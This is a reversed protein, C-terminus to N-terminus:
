EKDVKLKEGVHSGAVWGTTWCLQLSYGGSPRNVNLTDGILYLNNCIRSQMTKLNVEDLVVGGDAIVADEFGLSGTIPFRLDKMTKVLAKREEKTVSNVEHKSLNLHPLSLVAEVMKKPLIEHFINKLQKNKNNEFLNWVRRDLHGEDTDPFMDISAEVPGYAMLEKVDHAVNLVLPGSIGFHTFLIKGLKKIQARGEQFFSLRMFSLTVGSLKHVWEEETTLPVINPDPEKITHGLGETIQFGDGTSGTQPAALGGAAIALNKCTFSRGKKTTITYTSNKNDKVNVARANLHIEVGGKRVYKEMVDVVDNADQTEPFARKRAEVVLPLNNNEFFSFTEKVGFQSFPSFLYERAKGCNELFKRVDEEANTINCRGGGTISLKKGLVRNKEMLLVRAGLEAARGAAMMGAPGGGIVILDYINKDKHM